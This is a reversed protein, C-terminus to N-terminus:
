RGFAGTTYARVILAAQTLCILALARPERFTGPERAFAGRLFGGPRIGFQVIGGVTVLVGYLFHLSAKPRAGGLALLIGAAIQLVLLMLTLLLITWFTRSLVMMGRRDAVFAWGALLANAATTLIILLPLAHVATLSM